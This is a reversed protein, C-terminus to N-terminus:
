VFKRLKLGAVGLGLMGLLVAAPVPVQVFTFDDITFITGSNIISFEVYAINPATVSLFKNTKDIGYDSTNAGSTSDTGLLINSSDYATLIVTDTGTVYGGAMLWEPGVADVQINYSPYNWIVKSGSYPPFLYSLSGIVTADGNFDAGIGSFEDDIVIGDALSDFNIVSMDAQASGSAVTLVAVVCFTILRRM